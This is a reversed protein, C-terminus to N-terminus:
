SLFVGNHRLVAQSFQTVEEVNVVPDVRVRLRFWRGENPVPLAASTPSLLPVERECAEADAASFFFAELIVPLAM